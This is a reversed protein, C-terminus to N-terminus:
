EFAFAFKRRFNSGCIAEDLRRLPQRMRHWVSPIAMFIRHSIVIFLYILEINIQASLIFLSNTIRHILYTDALRGRLKSTFTRLHHTVAHTTVSHYIREQMWDVAMDSRHSFIFNSADLISKIRGAFMHKCCMTCVSVLKENPKKEHKQM